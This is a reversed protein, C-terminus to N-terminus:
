IVYIFIVYNWKIYTYSVVGKKYIFFTNKKYLIVIIYESSFNVSVIEWFSRELIETIYKFHWLDYGRM